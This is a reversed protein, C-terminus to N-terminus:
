FELIINKKTIKSLRGEEEHVKADLQRELYNNNFEHTPLSQLGRISEALFMAIAPSSKHVLRPDKSGQYITTFSPMLRLSIHARFQEEIAQKERLSWTVCSQSANSGLFLSSISQSQQSANFCRVLIINKPSGSLKESKIAM